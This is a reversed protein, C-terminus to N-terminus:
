LASQNEGSWVMPDLAMRLKGTVAGRRSRGEIAAAQRTPFTTPFPNETM